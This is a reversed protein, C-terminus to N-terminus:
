SNKPKDRVQRIVLSKQTTEHVAKEIAKKSTVMGTKPFLVERPLKPPLPDSSYSKRDRIRGDRGHIVLEGGHSRANERARDIAERQTSYVVSSANRGGEPKVAWGGDRPLVHFDEDKKKAM